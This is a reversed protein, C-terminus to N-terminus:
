AKYGKTEIVESPIKFDYEKFVAEIIENHEKKHVAHSGVATTASRSRGIYKLLRDKPLLSTLENRIYEWAGMNSPEEQLWIVESFGKYKELLAKIKNKDLPYLQEIRIIALDSANKKARAASLDYFIRGSCFILMKAKKPKVPDDLVTQFGGTTLDELPSICDPHRLLGKPTSVVLPKRIPNLAQSRLLHFLQAPMTPNVIRMNDRGALQM